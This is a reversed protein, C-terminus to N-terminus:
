NQCARPCVRCSRLSEVAQKAGERLKGEEFTKVYAPVFHEQSLWIARRRAVGGACGRTIPPSHEHRFM